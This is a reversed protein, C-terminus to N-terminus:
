RGLCRSIKEVSFGNRNLRQWKKVSVIEPCARSSLSMKNGMFSREFHNWSSGSQPMNIYYFVKLPTSGKLAWSYLTNGGRSFNFWKNERSSFHVPFSHIEKHFKKAISGYCVHLAPVGLAKYFSMAITTVDVCNGYFYGNKHIYNVQFNPSFVIGKNIKKGNISTINTRGTNKEDLSERYVTEWYNKDSNYLEAIDSFNYRRYKNISRELWTEVKNATARINEKVVLNNKKMISRCRNLTKPSLVMFEYAEKNISGNKAYMYFGFRNYGGYMIARSCWALLPALGLDKLEKHRKAERIMAIGDRIVLDKISRHAMKYIYGETIAQALPLPDNPTLVGKEAYRCFVELSSRNYEKSVPRYLINTWHHDYTNNKENWSVPEIYFSEPLGKLISLPVKAECVDKRIIISNKININKIFAGTKPNWQQIFNGFNTWIVAYMLKTNSNVLNIRYHFKQGKKPRSFADVMCYLYEDDMIGAYRKLDEHQKYRGTAKSKNIPVLDKATDSIILKSSEWDDILGDIKLDKIISESRLLKKHLEPELLLPLGQRIVPSSSKSIYVNVASLTKPSPHYGKLSTIAKKIKILLDKNAAPSPSSNILICVLLLALLINKKM